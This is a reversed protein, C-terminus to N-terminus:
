PYSNQISMEVTALSQCRLEIEDGPFVSYLNLPSGTLVIQGRRLHLRFGDLCDVLHLLSAFPGGPLTSGAASGLLRGNKFLSLRERLLDNPEDGANERAPLVAGAHLANNAILEQATPPDSRFVDNHLEIVAFSSAIAEIPYRLLWNRDPIDDRIRFAFEGEVALGEFLGPDLAAGTRHLETAFIHGIVPKQLGLQTRIAQSVCGIKYGALPEGRALRLSAVQFQVAYAQPVTLFDSGTAFVGGPRHADYDALQRAALASIDLENVKLDV